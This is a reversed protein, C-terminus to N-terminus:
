LYYSRGLVRVDIYQSPTINQRELNNATALYTGVQQRASTPDHLNFKVYYPKGAIAVDLEQAANAPLTLGSVQINKEKLMAMVTTIFAVERSSVVQKGTAVRLGAQDNITPLNATTSEPAAGKAILAKGSDDLVYAGGNATQLIFAPKTAKLYYIPRHGILPLTISVDALEPYQQQLAKSAAGTNATIKNKNWISSKLQQSAATQYEKSSHFAYANNETDLLVIRPNSSLSVINVACILGVIIAFLLGSRKFWFQLSLLRSREAALSPQSRRGPADSREARKAHYSFATPAQWDSTRRHRGLPQKHKGGRLKM